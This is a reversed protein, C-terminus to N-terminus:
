TRWAEVEAICRDYPVKEAATLLVTVSTYYGEVLAMNKRLRELALWGTVLWLLGAVLGAGSLILVVLFVFRLM